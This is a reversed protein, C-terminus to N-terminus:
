SRGFFNGIWVALLGLSLQLVVNLAATPQAAGALSFTEWAFASFTTFGGLIGTVLFLRAEATLLTRSEALGGLFGILFSGIVNVALTGYPFSPNLNRYTWSTLLYRFAGGIFSGIGVYLISYM